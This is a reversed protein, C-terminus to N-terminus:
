QGNVATNNLRWVLRFGVRDLVMSPTASRRSALRCPDGSIAWNGGRISVQSEPDMGDFYCWDMVNGVMGRVGYPSCDEPYYEMEVIGQGGERSFFHNAYDRDFNNGWSFHRGDVGAAAKNWEADTPLDYTRADKQSRYKCYARADEFSICVLPLSESWPFREPPPLRYNDGELLWLLGTKESERPCRRRAEEPNKRQLDNLFELYQKCSVPQIAIAFSPVHVTRTDSYTTPWYPDGFLQCPGEPVYAFGPPIEDASPLYVTTGIKENRGIKVPYRVPFHGEKEILCLYSGMALADLELNDDTCAIQESPVLIADEEVYRKLTFKAGSPESTLQLSGEGSLVRDFSGDNVQEILGRYFIVDAMKHEREANLFRDLYLQGLTRRAQANEPHTSLASSLLTQAQTFKQAISTEHEQITKDLVREQQRHEKSSYPNSQAQEELKKKNRVVEQLDSKESDHESLVKQADRLLNESEMRRREQEFTGDLYVQIDDALDKATEHRDDPHYELAKMCIEELAEPIKLKPARQSPQLVLGLRSEELLEDISSGTKPPLFTLVEYLTAGLAYIDTRADARRGQAQEPAMYLLTGQIHSDLTVIHQETRVTEVREGLDENEEPRDLVKALGWDLLQVEGYDGIMINAPKIDRHIVGKEHAFHVANCVSLLIQLLRTRSFQERMDRRGAHLDHIIEKLTRGKLLKMTFFVEQNENVAMEHIPPIGPHELQGTVQAEEVFRALRERNVSQGRRIVKIAISRRLDRDFALFVQGMGGEGIMREIVYKGEEKGETISLASEETLNRLQVKPEFGLLQRIKGMVSQEGTPKLDSTQGDAPSLRGELSTERGPSSLTELEDPIEDRPQPHKESM